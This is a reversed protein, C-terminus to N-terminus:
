ENNIKDLFSELSEDLLRERNPDENADSDVELHEHDRQEYPDQRKDM